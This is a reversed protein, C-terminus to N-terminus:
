RRVIGYLIIAVADRVTTEVNRDLNNIFLPSEMGKIATIIATAALESDYLAFLKEAVGKKLINQFVSIENQYYNQRFVKIFDLNELNESKLAKYLNKYEIFYHLRTLVYARIKDIPNNENEISQTIKKNLDDAEYEVVAKFIDTKSKFYYYLSSKGMKVLSAIKNMSTKEFGKQTFVESAKLIIKYRLEDKPM